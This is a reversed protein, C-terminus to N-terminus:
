VTEPELLASIAAQQTPYLGRSLENANFAEFGTKGRPVVFGICSRGDYVSILQAASYNIRDGKHRYSAGNM